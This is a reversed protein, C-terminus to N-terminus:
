CQYVRPSVSISHHLLSTLLPRTWHGSSALLPLVWYGASTLLPPGLLPRVWHGASTLLPRAWHGASGCVLRPNSPNETMLENEQLGRVSKQKDALVLVLTPDLM